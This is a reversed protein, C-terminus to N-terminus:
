VCRSTYLLCGADDFGTTGIVMKKGKAVCWNLHLLCPEPRTFDILVDFDNAAEDLTPAIIVGNKGIGAVEGADAGILSSAPHETAVSLTLGEVQACAEILAKGMRGAAGVVAVRTM